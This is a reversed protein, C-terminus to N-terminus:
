EGEQSGALAAESIRISERELPTTAKHHMLGVVTRLAERLRQNEAALDDREGILRRLDSPVMRDLCDDRRAFEMTLESMVTRRTRFRRPTPPTTYEAGLDFVGFGEDSLHKLLRLGYDIEDGSGGAGTCKRMAIGLRYAKENGPQDSYTYARKVDPTDYASGRIGILCAAPEQEVRQAKTAELKQRLDNQSVRLRAIERRQEALLEQDRDWAAQLSEVTQPPTEGKAFQQSHQRWCTCPETM